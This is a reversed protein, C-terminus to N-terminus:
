LCSFICKIFPAVEFFTLLMCNGKAVHLRINRLRSWVNSINFQQPELKAQEIFVFIMSKFVKILVVQLKNNQMPLHKFAISNFDVVAIIGQVNSDVELRSVGITTHPETV